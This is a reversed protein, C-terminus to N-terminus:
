GEAGHLLPLTRCGAPDDELVLLEGLLMVEPELVVVIV